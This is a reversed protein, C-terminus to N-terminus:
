YGYVQWSTHPMPANVAERPWFTTSGCSMSCGRSSCSPETARRWGPASSASCRPTLGPDTLEMALCYKWDVRARVADAAQRDTMGEAFQLVLVMALRAPSISPHGRVAFYEAFQADIFVEGLEERVRIALCGKPFVAHAVQATLPPVEGGSRPWM